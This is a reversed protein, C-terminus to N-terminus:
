VGCVGAPASDAVDGAACYSRGGRDAGVGGSRAVVVAGPLVVEFCSGAQGTSALRVDAGIHDALSKCIALGMGFGKSRDREHNNVQYFEDFLHPANGPPVGIGTDIVRLRVNGEGPSLAVTIGGSSTYKIANDILNTVIRELKQRDTGVRVDGGSEYRIFLGKQEIGPTFRRVLQQLMPELAIVEVTNHEQGGMRAFELLRTVLEGAAVANEMIVNVSEVEAEDRATMKLLHANLLVNHLPARLDHSLANLFFSKQRAQKEKQQALQKQDDIDACAGLWLVFKEHALPTAQVIFTRYAEAGGGNRGLLRAEITLPQRAEVARRWAVMAAASEDPHIAELWTRNDGTYQRWRQNAFNVRGQANATWVMHPLLEAIQHYREASRELEDVQALRAGLRGFAPTRLVFSWTYLVMTLLVADYFRWVLWPVDSLYFVGSCLACCIVIWRLRNLADASEARSPLKSWVYWDVAVAVYGLIVPVSLTLTIGTWVVSSLSNFLTGDIASQTISALGITWSM